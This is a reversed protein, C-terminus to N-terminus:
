TNLHNIRELIQILIDQQANKKAEAQSKGTKDNKIEMEMEFFKNKKELPKSYAPKAIIKKGFEIRERVMKTKEEYIRRKREQEEQLEKKRKENADRELALREREKVLEVQRVKIKEELAEVQRKKEELYAGMLMNQNRDHEEKLRSAM